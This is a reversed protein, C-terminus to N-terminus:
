ARERRRSVLLRAARQGIFSFGSDVNQIVLLGGGGRSGSELRRPAAALAKEPERAARFLGDGALWGPRSHVYNRLARGKM